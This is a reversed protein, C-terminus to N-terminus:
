EVGEINNGDEDYTGIVDPAVFIVAAMAIGIVAFIIYTLITKM